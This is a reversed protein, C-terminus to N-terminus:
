LKEHFLIRGRLFAAYAFPRYGTQLKMSEVIKSLSNFGRNHTRYCNKDFPGFYGYMRVGDGAAYSYAALFCENFVKSPTEWRVILVLPDIAEEVHRLAEIAEGIGAIRDVFLDRLLMGAGKSDSSSLKRRQLLSSVWFSFGTSLLM